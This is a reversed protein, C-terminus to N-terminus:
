RQVSRSPTAQSQAVSSPVPLITQTILPPQAAQSLLASQGAPCSQTSAVDHM